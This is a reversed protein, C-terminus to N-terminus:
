LNCASYLGMEHGHLTVSRADGSLRAGPILWFKENVFIEECGGWDQGNKNAHFFYKKNNGELFFEEIFFIVKTCVMQTM